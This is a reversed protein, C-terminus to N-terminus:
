EGKVGFSPKKPKVTLAECIARHHEPYHERMTELQERNPKWTPTFPWFPFDGGTCIDQLAAQDWEESMGTVVKLGTFFNKTGKEPCDAGILEWIRLEIDIRDRNAQQEKERAEALAETLSKLQEEM